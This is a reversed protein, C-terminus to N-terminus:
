GRGRRRGENARCYLILFLLRESVSYFCLFRLVRICYPDAEIRSSGLSVVTAMLNIIECRFMRIITSRLVMSIRLVSLHVRVNVKFSVGIITSRGKFIFLSYRRSTIFSNRSEPQFLLYGGLLVSLFVLRFVERADLRGLGVLLYCTAGLHITNPISALCFSILGENMLVRHILGRAVNLYVSMIVCRFNVLCAEFVMVKRLIRRRLFEIITM